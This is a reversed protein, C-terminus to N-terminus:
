DDRDAKEKMRACWSCLGGNSMAEYKESWPIECGRICEGPALSLVKNNFVSRQKDTLSDIGKDIVQRAIGEAASGMAYGDDLLDSLFAGLGDDEDYYSM